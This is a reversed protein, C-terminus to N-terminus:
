ITTEISILLNSNDTVIMICNDFVYVKASGDVMNISKFYKKPFALTRLKKYEIQSVTIDWPGEGISVFNEGDREYTNLYFINIVDESTSLKKIKDFDSADLDFSFEANDLDIIKKIDAITININMSSPDTGYFNQRLKSGAKIYLRDSFYFDNIKDFYINGTVLEDFSAIIQLIRCMDKASKTIFNITEDFEGINSFIDDTKFVFNKFANISKGSGVLSYILTNKKDIKFLVKDNLKSLDKLINILQSLNKKEINFSLEKTQGM